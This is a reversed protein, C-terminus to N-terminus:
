ARRPAFPLFGVTALLALMLVLMGDGTLWATQAAIRALALFMSLAGCAAPATRVLSARLTGRRGALWFALAGAATGPVAGLMILDMTVRNDETGPMAVVLLGPFAGVFAAACAALLALLFHVYRPM